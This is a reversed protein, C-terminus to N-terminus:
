KKEGATKKKHLELFFTARSVPLGCPHVITQLGARVASLQMRIGNGYRHDPPPQVKEERRVFQMNKEAKM